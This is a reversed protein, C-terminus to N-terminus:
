AKKLIEFYKKGFILTKQKNITIIDEDKDNKNWLDNLIKKLQKYNDKDFFYGKNPSQEKHIDINSLIINKNFAKAEEVTSSWGEFYSPNIVSVCHKMLVNVDDYSVLGLNIINNGLKNDSIYKNLSDFYDTTNNKYDYPNGTCVLLLDEIENILEKVAKFVVIHNKHSWFQNPLYYYKKSIIKNIQRSHSRINKNIQTVFNLISLRDNNLNFKYNSKLHNFADNSSLILHDCSKLINKTNRNLSNYSKKDFLDKLYIYQFDPIWNVIKFNYFYNKTILTSHSLINIRYKKFYFILFINVNFLKFFLKNFFWSISKPTLSNVKIIECYPSFRKELKKDINYPFFFILKFQKQNVKHFAFILNYYYNLGGSYDTGIDYWFGVKKM